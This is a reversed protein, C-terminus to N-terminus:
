VSKTTTEEEEEEEGVLSAVYADFADDDTKEVNMTEVLTVLAKFADKSVEANNLLAALIEIRTDAFNSTERLM